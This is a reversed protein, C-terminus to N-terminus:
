SLKDPDGHWRLYQARLAIEMQEMTMAPRPPRYWEPVFDAVKKAPKGKGRNMNYNQAMLMGVHADARTEPFPEIALYAAWTLFEEVDM